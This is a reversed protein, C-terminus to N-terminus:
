KLVLLYEKTLVRIYRIQYLSKSFIFNFHPHSKTKSKWSIVRSTFQKLVWIKNHYTFKRDFIEIQVGSNRFLSQCWFSYYLSHASFSLSQSLFFVQDQPHIQQRISLTAFCKCPSSCFLSSRVRAINKLMYLFTDWLYLLAMCIQM